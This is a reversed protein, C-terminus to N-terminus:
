KTFMTDDPNVEEDADIENEGKEAMEMAMKDIEAQDQTETADSALAGTKKANLGTAM